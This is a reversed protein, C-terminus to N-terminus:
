SMTSRRKGVRLNASKPPISQEDEKEKYGESEAGPQCGREWGKRLSRLFPHPVRITPPASFLQALGGVRAVTPRQCVNESQRIGTLPCQFSEELFVHAHAEALPPLLKAEHLRQPKQRYSRLDRMGSQIRAVARRTSENEHELFGQPCRWRQVKSHLGHALLTAAQSVM